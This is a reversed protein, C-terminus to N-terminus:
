GGQGQRPRYVFFTRRPSEMSVTEILAYRTLMMTLWREPFDRNTRKEELPFSTVVAAFGGAEIQRILQQDDFQGGPPMSAFYSADLLVPELSSRVALYVDEVLQPEGISRLHHLVRQWQDTMQRRITRHNRIEGALKPASALRPALALVYAACAVALWTAELRTRNPTVGALWGDVLVGVLVCGVAYAELYYNPGSGFKASSAIALAVAFVFYLRLLRPGSRAAIAIGAGAFLGAGRSAAMALVIAFRQADAWALLSGFVNMGFAGSTAVQALGVGMAVGIGWMGLVVMVARPRRQWLADMGIALVACVASQKHLFAIVLLVASCLMHSAGEGRRYLWVGVLSFFVMASDPRFSNAYEPSLQGAYWLLAAFVAAVRAGGAQRVLTYTMVGVGLWLAYVYGRGVILTGVWDTKLWRAVTGPVLYFLPMYQTLVHPPVSWDHYLPQGLRVERLGYLSVGEIGTIGDDLDIENILRAHLLMASVALLATLMWVAGGLLRQFDRARM